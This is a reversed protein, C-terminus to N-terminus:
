PASCIGLGAAAPPTDAEFVDTCVLGAGACSDAQELDCYQACCRATGCGTVVDSTVCAFGSDCSNDSQCTNGQSGGNESSDDYFCTFANDSAYCGEDEPCPEAELPDCGTLCVTLVGENILSCIKDPQGCQAHDPGCSCLEACTGENVSYDVDWCILGVDCSDYGLDGSGEVFCSEGFQDADQPVPNCVTQSFGGRPLCKEGEPCDQAYPDCSGQGTYPSTEECVVPPLPDPQGTGSESGSSTDSGSGVVTDGSADAGSGAGM